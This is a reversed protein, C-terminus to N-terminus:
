RLIAHGTFPPHTIGPFHGEYTLSDSHGVGCAEVKIRVKGPAPATLEREVLKLKGPQSVQLARYLKRAMTAGRQPSSTAFWPWGIPKSTNERPACFMVTAGAAKRSHM